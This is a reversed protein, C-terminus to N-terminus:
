YKEGETRNSQLYESICKEASRCCDILGSHKERIYAIGGSRAQRELESALQSARVAGVTLASSKLGCCVREYKKWDDSRFASDLEDTRADLGLMNLLKCYLENNGGCWRVGLSTDLEPYEGSEPQPHEKSVDEPEVQTILEPPLYQLLMLELDDSRIPKALYDTFGLSTYEEKAGAMANATLAIVPTYRNPLDPIAKLKNLTEIGDMEPMLHDMFILDYRNKRVLGLCEKGSYASDIRMKTNKLLGRIVDINMKVDDVVLVRAAAAQFREKYERKSVESSRRNEIFVGVPEFSGVRQPIDVIFESGVGLSSIVSISGSMLETLRKTISLGLGTGEINRNQVEDLRNFDRFLNKQNELSIGMGTDRVSIHLVVENDGSQICGLSLVVKGATTYKVANTLLNIIIERIRVEDGILRSPMEPDNKLEMILNKKEARMIILSYCDNMLDQLSYEVPLIDLRGSEIKSFDLVDNIVSLLSQGASQINDAYSLISEEKSERLIMEDMGLVANIPTRIEHSMSVLFSTKAENSQDAIKKAEILQKEQEEMKRRQKEFVYGQYKITIGLILPIAVIAQAMDSAIMVGLDDGNPMVIIDPKFVQVAFCALAALLNLGFMIYCGIGDLIFWPIVLGFTLWLPMGSYVGGNFIFMFPFLILEIVICILYSAPTKKKLIVSIYFAVFVTLTTFLSILNGVLSYNLAFSAIISVSSGLIAVALMMNQLKHKIDFDDNLLLNQLFHLLSGKKM